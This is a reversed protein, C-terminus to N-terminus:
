FQLFLDFHSYWVAIAHINENAYQIRDFPTLYNKLLVMMADAANKYPVDGCVYVVCDWVMLAVAQHTLDSFVDFLIEKVLIDVVGSLGHELLLRM